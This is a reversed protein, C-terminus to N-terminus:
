GHPPLQLIFTNTTLETSPEEDEDGDPVVDDLRALTDTVEDEGVEFM